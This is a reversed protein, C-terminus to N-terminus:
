QRASRRRATDMYSENDGEAGHYALSYSQVAFGYPNMIRDDKDEFQLNAYAVRITARWYVISPEQGPFMEYTAFQTQWLGHSLPKIWQIDIYRRLGSRFLKLNAEMESTKFDNYVQPSSYWYLPSGETWSSILTEADSGITYRLYLYEKIYQETVLDTVPYRLVHPQVQEVQSFYKNISFFQPSVKISPVMLYITLVLVVNVCISLGTLIVLLRSTWLYRREPFAEVHVKVPFAGLEDPSEKEKYRFLTRFIDFM